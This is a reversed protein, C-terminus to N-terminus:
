PGLISNNEIKIQMLSSISVAREKALSAKEGSFLEDVTQSFLKIWQQFHEPKLPTMNHLRRHV